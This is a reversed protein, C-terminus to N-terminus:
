RLPRGFHRHLHRWGDRHRWSRGGKQLGFPCCSRIRSSPKAFQTSRTAPLRPRWVRERRRHFRCSTGPASGALGHAAGGTQMRTAGVWARRGSSFYPLCIALVLNRRIGERAFWGWSERMWVRVARPESPSVCQLGAGVAAVCVRHALSLTVEAGADAAAEIVATSTRVASTKQAGWRTWM